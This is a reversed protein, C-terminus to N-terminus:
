TECLAQDQPSNPPYGYLQTAICLRGVYPSAQSFNRTNPTIILNVYVGLFM